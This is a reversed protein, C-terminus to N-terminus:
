AVLSKIARLSRGNLHNYLVALLYALNALALYPKVNNLKMVPLPDILFLDKLHGILRENDARRYYLQKGKKTKLFRKVSNKIRSLIIPEGKKNKLKRVPTILKFGKEKCGQYNDDSDYGKDALSHRIKRKCDQALNKVEDMLPLLFNTDHHNASSIQWALPILTQKVEKNKNDKVLVTSTLHIKYGFVWGRTKSWGWRADPDSAKIEANKKQSPKGQAKLLSSDAAIVRLSIIRYRVLVQVVQKAFEVVPSELTKFRRTLTRYSPTKDKLGCAKAVQPNALLVRALSRVSNLKLFVMVLFAKVMVKVPYVYPRGRLSSRTKIRFADVTEILIKM